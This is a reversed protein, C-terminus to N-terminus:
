NMNSKLNIEACGFLVIVSVIAQKSSNEVHSLFHMKQKFSMCRQPKNSLHRQELGGRLWNDQAFFFRSFIFHLLM